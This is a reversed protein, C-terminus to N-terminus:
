GKLGKQFGAFIVDLNAFFKDMQGFAQIEEESYHQEHNAKLQKLYEKIKAADTRFGDVVQKQKKVNGALM